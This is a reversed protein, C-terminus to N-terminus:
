IAHGLTKSIRRAADLVKTGVAGLDVHPGVARPYAVSIAAVIEGGHDYLPAGVAVLGAFNEDVSTTFGALKASNIHHVLKEPDTITRATFSTLPGSGVVAKQAEPDLGMLLAKGLATSHLAFSEGPASRIIVPSHSHITLLYLGEGARREGLFANFCDQSALLRLEPEAAAIVQDSRRVRNALTLISHGLRYRRTGSMQEVYGHAALTNLIRQVASPSSELQRAIERVGLSGVETRFSALVALGRELSLNGSM